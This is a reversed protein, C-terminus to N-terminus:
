TASESRDRGFPDGALSETHLACTWRGAERQWLSADFATLSLPKGEVTLQETVKYAIVVADEGAEQVKVDEFAYSELTWTGGALMQGMTPPDIEGVGTAGIVICKAATMRAATETDKKKMAEWFTKELGLVEDRLKQDVM